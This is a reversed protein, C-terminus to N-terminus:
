RRYSQRVPTIPAKDKNTRYWEKVGVLTTWGYPRGSPRCSAELVSSSAQERKSQGQVVRRRRRRASKGPM